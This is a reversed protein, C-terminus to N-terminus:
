DEKIQVITLQVYLKIQGILIKYPNTLYHEKQFMLCIVPLQEMSVIITSMATMGLGLVLIILPVAHIQKTIKTLRYHQPILQQHQYFQLLQQLLQHLLHQLLHYQLLVLAITQLTVVSYQDNIINYHLALFYFCTLISTSKTENYEIHFANIMIAIIKEKENCKQITKM